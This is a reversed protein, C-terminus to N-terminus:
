RINSFDRRIGLAKMEEKVFEKFQKKNIVEAYPMRETILFNREVYNLFDEDVDDNLILSMATPYGHRNIYEMGEESLRHTLKVKAENSCFKDTNRYKDFIKAIQEPEIDYRKFYNKYLYDLQKQNLENKDLIEYITTNLKFQRSSEYYEYDAFYTLGVLGGTAMIPGAGVAWIPLIVGLSAVMCTYIREETDRAYKTNPRVCDAGIDALMGWMSGQEVIPTHYITDREIADKCKFNGAFALNSLLTTALVLTTTLKKMPGGLFYTASCYSVKQM